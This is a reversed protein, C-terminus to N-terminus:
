SVRVQFSLSIELSHLDAAAVVRMASIQVVVVAEM